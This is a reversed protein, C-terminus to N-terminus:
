PLQRLVGLRALEALAALALAAIILWSFHENYHVYRVENIEARELKDISAYSQAVGKADQAHFYLGDTRKAIDKLTEEDIRVQASRLAMAGSRTRFPMPAVGNTGAGITYVRINNTSALKAAQEPTIEGENNVGDTLLIVVRSAAESHLLREVALALGEGIATATERQDSAVEVDDLASLLSGHDLTLPAIGDAYTGFVVLGIQDSARGQTDDGGLVFERLVDKVADLRSISFDDAVFDRADMSGSRDVVLMIAIGESRVETTADGTRPGALAVALLAVSVGLALAPLFHLRARWRVPGHTLLATSSYRVQGTRRRALWTALPALLILALLAPDRFEITNLWPLEPM